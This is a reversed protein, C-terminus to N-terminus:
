WQARGHGDSRLVRGDSREASCFGHSESKAASRRDPAIVSHMRYSVNIIEARSYLCFYVSYFTLICFMKRIDTRTSRGAASPLSSHRRTSASRRNTASRSAVISECAAAANSNIFKCADSYPLQGLQGQWHWHPWHRAAGDPRAMAWHQGLTPISTTSDLYVSCVLSVMVIFCSGMSKVM